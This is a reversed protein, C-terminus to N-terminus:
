SQLSLNSVFSMSYAPLDLHPLPWSSSRHGPLFGGLRLGFPVCLDRTLGQPILTVVGPPSRLEAPEVPMSFNRLFMSIDVIPREFWTRCPWSLPLPRSLARFQLNVCRAVIPLYGTFGRSPFPVSRVGCGGRCHLPPAVLAGYLITKGVRHFSPRFAYLDLSAWYVRFVDLFVVQQNPVLSCFLPLVTPLGAALLDFLPFGWARLLAAAVSLHFSWATGM